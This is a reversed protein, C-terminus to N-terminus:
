YKYTFLPFINFLLCKIKGTSYVLRLLPIKEFFYICTSIDRLKAIKIVPFVGFLRVRCNHSFLTRHLRLINNSRASHYVCARLIKRLKGPTKAHQAIYAVTYCVERQAPISMQKMAMYRCINCSVKLIYFYSREDVQKVGNVWDLLKKSCQCGSDCKKDSLYSSDASDTRICYWYAVSNDCVVTNAFFVAQSLFFLDEGLLVGDPFRITHNIVLARDYIATTFAQDFDFKTANPREHKNIVGNCEIIALVGRAIDAKAKKATRYLCEYFDLDVYDDPDVFGIYEGRAINIGGNRAVAVGMNVDHAILRVRRDRAVYQKVIDLTGDTSKDDICIIEIDQLTQSILSDLCRAVYKEVNYCPVIVSVRPMPCRKIRPTPNLCGTFAPGM